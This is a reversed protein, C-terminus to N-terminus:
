QLVQDDFTDDQEEEEEEDLISELPGSKLKCFKTIFPAVIVVM